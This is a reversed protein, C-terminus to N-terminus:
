TLERTMQLAAGFETRVRDGRVFGAREYFGLAAPNAVAALRALGLSQAQAAAEALLARGIGRHMVPPDVFLDEVELCEGVARTTVFGVVDGGANVAVRTRDPHLVSEPLPPVDLDPDSVLAARRYVGQVAPVDEAAVDRISVASQQEWRALDAPEDLDDATGPVDIEDVLEPRASLLARGGEDAGALSLAGHWLDPSMVTPHGRRGDYCGVAIRGPRWASVVARAAATGVGPTDVLLVAIADAAAGAVVGLTLSSRMGREPSRNVVVHAGPVSVGARAIVFVEDCCSALVRVARDVLREGALELEAKPVGM